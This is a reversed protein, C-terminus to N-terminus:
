ELRQKLLEVGARAMDEAKEWEKNESCDHAGRLLRHAQEAHTLAGGCEDTSKRAMGELDSKHSSVHEFARIGNIYAM